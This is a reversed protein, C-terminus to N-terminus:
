FTPNTPNHYWACCFDISGHHSEVDIPSTRVRIEHIEDGSRPSSKGGVDLKLVDVHVIQGVTQPNKPTARVKM